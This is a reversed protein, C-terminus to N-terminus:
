VIRKKLTKSYETPGAKKMVSKDKNNRTIPRIIGHFEKYENIKRVFRKPIGSDLSTREHVYLLDGVGKEISIHYGSVITARTDNVTGSKRIKRLNMGYCALISRAEYYRGKQPNVNYAKLVEQTIFSFDDSNNFADAGLTKELMVNKIELIKLLEKIVKRKLLIKKTNHEDEKADIEKKVLLGLLNKFKGESKERCKLFDDTVQTLGYEECIEFKELKLNEEGSRVEKDLLQNRTVDDIDEVTALIEAKSRKDIEDGVAEEHNEIGKFYLKDGYKRLLIDLGTIYNHTFKNLEKQVEYVQLDSYMGEYKKTRRIEFRGNKKRITEITMDRGLSISNDIYDYYASALDYTCYASDTGLYLKPDVLCLVDLNKLKRVRGIMQVLCEQDATNTIYCFMYDFHELSFDVGASVKPSFIVVDFVVWIADIDNFAEDDADDGDARHFIMRKKDGFVKEIYEKCANGFTASLTPIAVKKGAKLANEIQMLFYRHYHKRGYMPARIKVIEATKPDKKVIEEVRDDRLVHIRKLTDDHFHNKISIPDFDRMLMMTKADLHADMCVIKKAMKLICKCFLENFNMVPHVHKKVTPAYFQSIISESEDIVVLDYSTGFQMSEDDGGAFLKHLSEVSIILKDCERMEEYTKRNFELYNRVGEFKRCVDAAFTRRHSLFLVRDNKGIIEKNLLHTKGSGCHSAICLARIGDDNVFRKTQENILRHDQTVKQGKLPMLSNVNVDIHKPLEIERKGDACNDGDDHQGNNDIQDKIKFVSEEYLQGIKKHKKCRESYCGCMIESNQNAYAYIGLQSHDNGTIPCAHRDHNYNFSFYGDGERQYVADPMFSKMASTIKLYLYDSRDSDGERINRIVKGIRNTRKAGLKDVYESIDIEEEFNTNHTILYDTVCVEDIINNAADIPELLRSLRTGDKAVKSSYITRMQQSIGYVNNDINEWFRLESLDSEGAREAMIVALAKARKPGMFYWKSDVVVHFSVKYKGKGNRFGSANTIKIDSADITCNLVSMADKTASILYKITDLEEQKRKAIFVLDSPDDVVYEIEYDLYPKIPRAEDFTEYWNDYTRLLKDIGDFSDLCGSWDGRNGQPIYGGDGFRRCFVYKYNTLADKVPKGTNVLETPKARKAEKRASKTTATPAVAATVAAPEETGIGDNTPAEKDDHSPQASCSTRSSRTSQKSRSTKKSRKPKGMNLSIM